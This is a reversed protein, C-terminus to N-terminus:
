SFALSQRFQIRVVLGLNIERPLSLLWFHIGFGFPCILLQYLRLIEAEQYWVLYYDFRYAFGWMVPLWRSWAARHSWPHAWWHNLILSHYCLNPHWKLHSKSMTTPPSQLHLPKNLLKLAILEFGFWPLM